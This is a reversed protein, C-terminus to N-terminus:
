VADEDIAFDHIAARDALNGAAPLGQAISVRLGADNTNGASVAIECEAAVTVVQALCAEADASLRVQEGPFHNADFKREVGVVFSEDGVGYDAPAVVGDVAELEEVEFRGLPQSEAHM